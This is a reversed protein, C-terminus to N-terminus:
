NGGLVVQVSEDGGEGGVAPADEKVRAVRVLDGVQALPDKDHPLAANDPLEGAAVHLGLLDHGRGDHLLHHCITLWRASASLRCASRRPQHLWKAACCAVRRRATTM